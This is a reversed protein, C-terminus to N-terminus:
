GDVDITSFSYPPLPGVYRIQMEPHARAAEDIRRDFADVNTRSVLFAGNIVMHPSLPDGASIDDALESLAQYLEDADRERRAELASAFQEGLHIRAYYTAEPDIGAIREHLAAITPDAAVLERVILDEQYSAKVALEVHHDLVDLLAVLHERNPVLVENRVARDDDVVTGYRLPVVPGREIAAGLVRAHARLSRAGARIEDHQVDSVIAALPESTVVRVESGVSGMGAVDPAAVGLRTVGYVYTSAATADPREPTAM